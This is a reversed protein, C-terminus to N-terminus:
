GPTGPGERGDSTMVARIGEGRLRRMVYTMRARFPEVDGRDLIADCHSHLYPTAYDMCSLGEQRFFRLSYALDQINNCWYLGERQRRPQPIEARTRHRYEIMPFDVGCRVALLGSMNHRANIEMLKYTGDRPDEKLEVNAFGDYGLAELITRGTEAAAPLWQSQLVRPSGFRPPAKRIQRATFEVLPRGDWYYANYNVVADDRGPIIEQIIVQLGAEEAECYSRRLEDENTVETMKRGFTLKYLHGDVPKVLIPFGLVSGADVAEALSAPFTTLPAALGQDIAFRLTLAKDLCISTTQWDPCAVVFHEQLEAKNRAAIVLAEDSTPIVISGRFRKSQELIKGLFGVEDEVPSNTKLSIAVHKSTQAVDDDAYYFVIVPIRNEGLSRVVALAPINGTLVLAAADM